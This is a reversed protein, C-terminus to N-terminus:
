LDSSETSALGLGFGAIVESVDVDVASAYYSSASWAIILAADVLDQTTIPTGDPTVAAVQNMPTGWVWGLDGFTFEHDAAKAAFAAILGKLTERQSPTYRPVEGM